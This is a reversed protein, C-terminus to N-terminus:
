AVGLKTKYPININKNNTPPPTHKSFHLKPCPKISEPYIYLNECGRMQIYLLDMIIINKNFWITGIGIDYTPPTSLNNIQKQLGAVILHLAQIQLEHNGKRQYAFFHRQIVFQRRNANNTANRQYM